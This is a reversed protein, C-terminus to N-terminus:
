TNRGIQYRDKRAQRGAEWEIIMKALLDGDGAAKVHYVAITPSYWVRPNLQDAWGYHGPWKIVLTERNQALVIGLGGHDVGHMKAKGDAITIRGDM